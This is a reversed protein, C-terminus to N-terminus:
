QVVRFTELEKALEDVIQDEKFSRVLKGNKYMMGKGKGGAIGIDADSAEGPGNVVCGLVAVKIPRPLDIHEIKKEIDAVLKM